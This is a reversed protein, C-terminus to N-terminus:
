HWLSPTPSAILLTVMTTSSCICPPPLPYVGGGGGTSFEMLIINTQVGERLKLSKGFFECLSTKHKVRLKKIDISSSLGQLKFGKTLTGLVLRVMEPQKAEYLERGQKFPSFVTQSSVAGRGLLWQSCVTLSSVAERGLQWQSYATQSSAAERGLQLPLGVTLSWTQEKEVMCALYVMQNWQVNGQSQKSSVM